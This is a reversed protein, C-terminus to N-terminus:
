VGPTHGRAPDIVSPGDVDFCNAYRDDAMGFAKSGFRPPMNSGIPQKGRVRDSLRVKRVIFSRMLAGDGDLTAVRKRQAISHKNMAAVCILIVRFLREPLKSFM